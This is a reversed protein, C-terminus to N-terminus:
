GAGRPRPPLTPFSTVVRDGADLDRVQATGKREVEEISLVSQMPLHLVRTEAYRDRLREEAADVVLSDRPEFVLGTIEIFGWIASSTAGTAYLTVQQASPAQQVFQIRYLRTPM